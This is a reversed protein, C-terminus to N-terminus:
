APTGIRPDLRTYLMDVMTNVAIYCLAILLVAGQVVPYDRRQISEVLLQGLGPWNFVTETVVAGGLLAGLQLGIVTVVPLAANRCVHGFVVAFESLGRARAAQVHPLQLVDLMAARTMRTLVAALGSALTVAPLVLGAAQEAGGIPFWRLQVAFAIILLPGLVFSPLSMGLVALVSAGSDWWRGAHLAALAGLPLGVLLALLLAALALQATYFFHEGLLSMVPQGSVLSVGLDGHVLGRVFRWWQESLPLDLGLQRRLALRDAAAAYDGLMVDVPDGPVCHLLLFVMLSVAFAVATAGALRQGLTRLEFM